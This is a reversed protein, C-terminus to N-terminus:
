ESSNEIQTLGVLPLVSLDLCTQTHSPLGLCMLVLFPLRLHWRERTVAEVCLNQYISQNRGSINIRISMQNSALMNACLKPVRLKGHLSNKFLIVVGNTSKDLVLKLQIQIHLEIFFTGLCLKQTIKTWIQDNRDLAPKGLYDLETVCLGMHTGLVM